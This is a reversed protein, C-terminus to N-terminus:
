IKGTLLHIPLWALLGALVIRAIWTLTTAKKDGRIRLVDWVHESLTDGPRSNFVAIFEVILFAALISLWAITFPSM